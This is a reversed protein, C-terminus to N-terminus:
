LRNKLKDDICYYDNNSFAESLLKIFRPLLRENEKCERLHLAVPFSYTKEM